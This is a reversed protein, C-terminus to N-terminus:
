RADRGYETRNGPNLCHGRLSGKPVAELDVTLYHVVAEGDVESATFPLMAAAPRGPLDLLDSRRRRM